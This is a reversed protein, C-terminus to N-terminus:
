AVLRMIITILPNRASKGPKRCDIGFGGDAILKALSRRVDAFAYETTMLAVWQTRRYVRVVRVACRLTKLMVVQDAALVEREAGDVHLLHAKAQARRGAALEAANGLRPGYKRPRGAKGPPHRSRNHSCRRV